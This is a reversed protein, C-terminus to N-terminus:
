PKRTLKRKATPAVRKKEKANGRPTVARKAVPSPRQWQAVTAELAAVRGAQHAARQEITRLEKEQMKLDSLTKTHARQERELHLQVAKTEQRGHDIQRHARDEIERMHENAAACEAHLASVKSQLATVQEQLTDRQLQLDAAQMSLQGIFEKREALQLKGANLEATADAATAHAEAVAIEWVKREQILSTRDAYLANQEETLAARALTEAHTVAVRWVAAFGQGVEPPLDPLTIVEHLRQALTGRWVELMRIVTNPSGTGLAERIKEVTPKQGAAVLGDAADNVQEQTIGKPM